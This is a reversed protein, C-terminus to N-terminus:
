NYIFKQLKKYRMNLMEMLLRIEELCENKGGGVLYANNYRKLLNLDIDPIILADDKDFLEDEDTFTDRYPRPLFKMFDKVELDRSDNINKKIMYKGTAIIIDEDIGTDMWGRFFAYDKEVFDIDDIRDEDMGWELLYEKQERVTDEIGVNCGNHFWLVNGSSNNVHGILKPTINKHHRHYFPQIDVVIMKRNDGEMLKEYKNLDKLHM